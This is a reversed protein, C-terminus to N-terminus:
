YGSLIPFEVSKCSVFVIRCVATMYETFAVAEYWAKEFPTAIRVSLAYEGAEEVDLQYILYADHNGYDKHTDALYEGM